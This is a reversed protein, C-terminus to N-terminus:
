QAVAKRYAPLFFLICLTIASDFWFYLNHWTDGEWFCSATWAAYELACFTLTTMYLARRSRAAPNTRMYLLGRISHILLLSM